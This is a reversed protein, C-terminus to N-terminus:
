RRLLIMTTIRRLDSGALLLIPQGSGGWDLVELQVGDEVTVFRTTHPSADKWETQQPSAPPALAFLLCLVSSLRATM